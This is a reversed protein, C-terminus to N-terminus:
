NRGDIDREVGGSVTARRRPGPRGRLRPSDVGVSRGQAARGSGARHGLGSRTDLVRRPTLAIYRGASAAAETPAYFGFLDIVFQGGSQTFLSITGDAGVPVTVLNAITQGPREVNLNSSSG